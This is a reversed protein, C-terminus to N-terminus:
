LTMSRKFEDIQSVVRRLRDRRARIPALLEDLWAIAQNALSTDSSGDVIMGWRDLLTNIRRQAGFRLMMWLLLFYLMLFGLSMLLHTSGMLKVFLITLEALTKDFRGQLVGPLIAELMPQIIPFWLLAGVTLLWRIPWLWGTRKGAVFQAVAQQQSQIAQALRTSLDAVALDAPADEWLKRNHYLTALVPQTARLEAFTAQVLRALARDSDRLHADVSGGGLSAVPSVNRQVFTLVPALVANLAGIIPWRSLRRAIAPEIIAARHASDASMGPIARELLPAGVREHILDEAQDCLRETSELMADLRQAELWQLLTQDQRRRALKRSKEVDAEDRHKSLREILRPLDFDRPHIASILQVPPPAISLVRGIRRAYDERLEEASKHGNHAVLQDVKNLCYIFNSPDNGTAVAALLKQPQQDAYKEISQVWIPYLLHRLMSRTVALHREHVSDIDPLDILVQRAISTNDHLVIRFEGPLLRNLLSRLAGDACRHAYAIAIETGPGSSTEETVKSGILANVLSSKGVDKGGIIGVLYLETEALTTLELVPADPSLLAPSDVGTLSVTEAVIDRIGLIM